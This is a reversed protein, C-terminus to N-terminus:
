KENIVFEKKIKNLYLNSFNNLQEDTKKAIIVNFEKEIDFDEKKLDKLDDIKLILYGSSIKLPSTHEGIYLDKLLNLIDPNISYENIWGIKGSNKKASEAVSHILVANKFGIEKIDKEIKKIQNKYDNIDKVNFILESLLYTRSTKKQLNKLDTYIKDKDIVIQKSFKSYILEKWFIELSIKKKIKDVDISLKKLYDEFEEYTKINLNIYINKLAEELYKDDVLIEEAYKLIENEKVIESILSKKAIEISSQKSLNTFNPNLLKLYELEKYIDLTTIIENNVSLIIRNEFSLTKKIPFVLLFFILIIKNM